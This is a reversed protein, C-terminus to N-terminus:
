LSSHFLFNVPLFIFLVPHKNKNKRHLCSNNYGDTGEIQQALWIQLSLINGTVGTTVVPNRTATYTYSNPATM